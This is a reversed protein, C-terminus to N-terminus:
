APQLIEIKPNPIAAPAAESLYHPAEEAEMEARIRDFWALVDERYEASVCLRLMQRFEYVTARDVWGLDRLSAYTSRPFLNRLTPQDTLYPYETPFHDIVLQRIQALTRTSDTVLVEKLRASRLKEKTERDLPGKYSLNKGLLALRKVGRSYSVTGDWLTTIEHTLTHVKANSSTRLFEVGKAAFVKRRSVSALQTSGKPVESKHVTRVRLDGEESLVLFTVADEKEVYTNDSLQCLSDIYVWPQLDYFKESRRVIRLEKLTEEHNPYTKGHVCIVDEPKAYIGAQTIIYGDPLLRRCTTKIEGEYLAKVPKELWPKFKEGTIECTKQMKESDFEQPLHVSGSTGPLVISAGAPFLMTRMEPTVGTVKGDILAVACHGNNTIGGAYDLYPMIYSHEAKAKVTNFVVGRWGGLNSYGNAALWKDLVPSGYNRIRRKEGGVDVVLCRAAIGKGDSKLMVALKVGDTAYALAPINEITWGKGIANPEARMCSSPSDPNMYARPIDMGELFVINPNAEAHHQEILERMADESIQPYVRSLLRGISARIQRDADGCTKDPTFAVQTKDERSIHAYVPAARNVEDLVSTVQNIGLQIRAAERIPWKVTNTWKGRVLERAQQMDSYTMANFVDSIASGSTLRGSLATKIEDKTM